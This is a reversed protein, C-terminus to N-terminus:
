LRSTIVPLYFSVRQALKCALSVLCWTTDASFHPGGHTHIQAMILVAQVTWIETADFVSLVTLSARGLNFYNDAEASYAPITLDMLAGLCFVLFLVALKHATVNLPIQVDFTSDKVRNYHQYIPTVVENILEHRWIPRGTWCAQELYVECLASARAKPPLFSILTNLTHTVDWAGGEGLPFM